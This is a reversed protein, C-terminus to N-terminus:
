EEGNWEIDLTSMQYSSIKRKRSENLLYIFSSIQSFFTRPDKSNWVIDKARTMKYIQKLINKSFLTQLMALSLMTTETGVRYSKPIQKQKALPFLCIGSTTRPNCEIPYFDGKGNLILDFAIQGTYQYEEIYHRVFEELKRNAFPEFYITAGLGVSDNTQYASFMLMLGKDAIAYTCIQQGEIKEQIVWLNKKQYLLDPIEAGKKFSVETGFRSYAPKCVYENDLHISNAELYDSIEARDITKTTDIVSTCPVHIFESFKDRLTNIFLGKHHFIKLKNLPECFVRCYESLQEHALAIHFVEECTPILLEIKYKKIIKILDQIYAHRNENPSCVRLVKEFMNSRMCLHRPLSEAMFLNDGQEKLLRALYYTAPARGGTLLINISM